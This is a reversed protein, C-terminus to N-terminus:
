QDDRQPTIITDLNTRDTQPQLGYRMPSAGAATVNHSEAGVRPYDGGNRRDVIAQKGTTVANVPPAGAVDGTTPRTRAPGVSVHDRVNTISTDANTSSVAAPRSAPAEYSPPDRRTVYALTRAFADVIGM